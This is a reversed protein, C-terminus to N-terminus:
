PSLLRTAIKFSTGVLPSCGGIGSYLFWGNHNSLRHVSTRVSGLLSPQLVRNPDRFGKQSEQVRDIVDEPMPLSTAFVRNLLRGTSLSIVLFNGQDNGTPRLAPTGIARSQMSNDHEEHTQVYQGFECRCHRNCNFHEGTIM